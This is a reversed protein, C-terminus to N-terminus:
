ARKFGKRKSKSGEVKIDEKVAIGAEVLANLRYVIKSVTINEDGITIAIDAATQFEDTLAAAITETMADPEQAKAAKTAKAKAARKDLLEIEHQAFEVIDNRGAATAMEIVAKFADRKTTKEM